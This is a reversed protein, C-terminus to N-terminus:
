TLVHITPIDFLKKVFRKTIKKEGMLLTPDLIFNYKTTPHHICKKLGALIFLQIGTIVGISIYLEVADKKQGM